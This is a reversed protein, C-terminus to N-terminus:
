RTPTHGDSVFDSAELEDNRAHAHRDPTNDSKGGPQCSRDKRGAARRSWELDSPDGQAAAALERIVPLLLLLRRRKRSIPFRDM